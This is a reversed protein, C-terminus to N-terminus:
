AGRRAAWWLRQGITLAVLAALACCLGPFAGPLLLFLCYFVITEAGEILGTPITLTTCEGSVGAGRGHKELLASQYLWAAINVYFSALLLALCRYGGPTDTGLAIGLPVAAYIVTDLVIDLYGGFDSQKGQARAVTGDLGDLARNALWLGLALPYARQWAALGAVLGVACAALTLTTPSVARLPGRALPVLLWEKPRRLRQDIMTTEQHGRGGVARRAPYALLPCRSLFSHHVDAPHIRARVDSGCARAGWSAADHERM